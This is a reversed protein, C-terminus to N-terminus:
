RLGLLVRFIAWISAPAFTKGVVQKYAHHASVADFLAQYLQPTNQAAKIVTDMFGVRSALITIRRMTQGYPLDSLIDQNAHRYDEFAMASIGQHLIVQAARAGTLIASTIGKGKFARVLGAADGVMVFRDGYFNRALGGPFRGKFYRL